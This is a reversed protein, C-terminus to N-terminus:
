IWKCEDKLMAMVVADDNEFYQRYVGEQIFGLQKCIKLSASNKSGILVAVRVVGCDVFPYSFMTKLNSRMWMSRDDAWAAAWIERGTYGSFTVGGVLSGDKVFGISTNPEPIPPCKCRVACVEALFEQKHSTPKAVM